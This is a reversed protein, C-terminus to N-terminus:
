RLAAGAIRRDVRNAFSAARGASVTEAGYLVIWDLKAAPACPGVIARKLVRRLPRGMVLRDIWWPAGMTTVAIVRQLRQLRPIMRGLDPAHDFAVGPRWVRDFWGKLIAPFGFWWTPFVLILVDAEALQAALPDGTAAVPPGYYGAREGATLVPDFREAHLNLRDVTWGRAEAAAQARDALWGCLSRDLPHALVILCRTM